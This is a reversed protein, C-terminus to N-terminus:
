MKRLSFTEIVVQIEIIIADIPIIKIAYLLVSKLSKRPIENPRKDEKPKEINATVNLHFVSVGFNVVTASPPSNQKIMEKNAKNKESLLKTIFTLFEDSDVKCPKKTQLPKTSNVAPDFFKGAASSVKNDSVSTKPPTKQTQNGIKPILSTGDVLVIIPPKIIVIEIM